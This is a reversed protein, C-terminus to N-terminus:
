ALVCDSHSTRTAHKCNIRGYNLIETHLINCYGRSDRRGETVLQAGMTSWLWGEDLASKGTKLSPETTRPLLKHQLQRANSQHTEVGDNWLCPSMWISTTPIGLPAILLGRWFNLQTSISATALPHQVSGFWVSVDVGVAHWDYNFSQGEPPLWTSDAWSHATLQSRAEPKLSIKDCAQNSEVAGLCVSPSNTCWAMDSWAVIDTYLMQLQDAFWDNMCSWGAMWETGDTWLSYRVNAALYPLSQLRTQAENDIKWAAPM